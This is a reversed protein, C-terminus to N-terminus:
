PHKLVYLIVEGKVKINKSIKCNLFFTSVFQVIVINIVEFHEQDATFM